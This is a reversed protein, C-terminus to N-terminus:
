CGLIQSSVSRGQTWANTYQKHCAIWTTVSIWICIWRHCTKGTSQSWYCQLGHQRFHTSLFSSFHWTDQWLHAVSTHQARASRYAAFHNGHYYWCSKSKGHYGRYTQCNPTARVPHYMPCHPVLRMASTAHQVFFWNSSHKTFRGQVRKVAMADAQWITYHVM